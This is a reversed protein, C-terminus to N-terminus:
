QLTGIQNAGRGTDLEDINILRAIEAVQNAQLEDNHKCSAGVINIVFIMNQFFSHVDPVERTAAILALQLQYALYHVYYASPCDKLFLAQLGKWEGRM